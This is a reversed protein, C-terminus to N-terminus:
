SPILLSALCLCVLGFSVTKERCQTRTAQTISVWGQPGYVHEMKTARRVDTVTQHQFGNNIIGELM